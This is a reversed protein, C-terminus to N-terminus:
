TSFATMRLRICLGREKMLFDIATTEADELLWQDSLGSWQSRARPPGRMLSGVWVFLNEENRNVINFIQKSM